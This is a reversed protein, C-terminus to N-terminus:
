FEHLSHTKKLEECMVCDVSEGTVVNEIIPRGCLATDPDCVICTWHVMKPPKDLDVPNEITDTQSM